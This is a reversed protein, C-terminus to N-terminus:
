CSKVQSKAEAFRFRGRVLYSGELFRFVDRDVLKYPNLSCINGEM